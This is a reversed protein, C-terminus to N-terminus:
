GGHQRRLRKITELETVDALDKQRGAARKMAILHDLSAVRIMFGGLDYREAEAHLVRYAPAGTPRALLDIDGDATELTRADLPRRDTL